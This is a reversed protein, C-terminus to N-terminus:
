SIPYVVRDPDIRRREGPPVDVPEDDSPPALGLVVTAQRRQPPPDAGFGDEGGLHQREAPRNRLPIGPHQTVHEPQSDRRSVGGGLASEVGVGCGDRRRRLYGRLSGPRCVRRSWNCKEALRTYYM